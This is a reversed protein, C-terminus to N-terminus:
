ISGAIVYATLIIALAWLLSNDRREIRTAGRPRRTAMPKM